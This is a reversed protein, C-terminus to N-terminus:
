TVKAVSHFYLQAHSIMNFSTFVDKFEYFKRLIVPVQGSAVSISVVASDLFRNWCSRSLESQCMIEIPYCEAAKPHFFSESHAKM